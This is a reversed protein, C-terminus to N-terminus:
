RDQYEQTCAVAFGVVVRDPLIPFKDGQCHAHVFGRVGPEAVATCLFRDAPTCRWLPRPTVLERGGVLLSLCVASRLINWSADSGEIRDVVFGDMFRMYAGSQVWAFLRQPLRVEGAEFLIVRHLDNIETPRM